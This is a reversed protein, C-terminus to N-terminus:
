NKFYYNMSCNLFGFVLVYHSSYGDKFHQFVWESSKYQVTLPLKQLVQQTESNSTKSRLHREAYIFVSISLHDRTLNVLDWCMFFNGRGLPLREVFSAMVMKIIRLKNKLYLFTLMTSGPVSPLRARQEREKVSVCLETLVWINRNATQLGRKKTKPLMAREKKHPDPKGSNNVLQLTLASSTGTAGSNCSYSKNNM